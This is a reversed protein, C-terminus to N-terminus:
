ARNLTDLLEQAKTFNRDAALARELNHIAKKSEGMRVLVLAMGFFVEAKSVASNEDLKQLLLAKFVSEARLLHDSKVLDDTTEDALEVSLRGLDASVKVNAPDLKRAAELEELAATKEDGALLAAAIRLHIDALDKSRKGGYAEVARKLMAVAEEPIGAATFADALELMLDRNDPQLALAKELLSAAAVPDEFQKAQVESARRYLMVREAVDDGEEARRTMRDSLADWRELRQYYVELSEGLVRRDTAALDPTELALELVRVAGEDDSGYLDRAKIALAPVDSALGGDVLREYMEAADANRGQGEYLRALAECAPRHSPVTDLVALYGDIARAHDGVRTECLEALRLRLALEGDPDDEARARDIQREVLAVLEEDRGSSELLATLQEVAGAHGPLEDLVAKLHDVAETVADLREAFLRACDMRLEARREPDQEGDVLRELLRVLDETRDEAEYLRRLADASVTDTPDDDFAQEYIEIAGRTNELSAEAVRAAEHRLAKMARSDSTLDIRRLILDFREAHDGRRQCVTTLEALAWEDSDNAALMERLITEVLDEDALSEEAIIKAERRVDASEREVHAAGSDLLDALKRLTAVLDKERGDTRQLAELRVVADGCTPDHKLAAALAQEASAPDEVNEEFWTAVRLYVDRAVDSRISGDERAIIDGLANLVACGASRWAEAGQAGAGNLGALRELLGLVEEDAPGDALASEVIRQAGESDAGEDEVMVALDLRLRVREAPDETFDVRKNRLAIRAAGDGARRYLTDLAEAVREFLNPDATLGELLARAEAHDPELEVCRELQDLAATKDEFHELKLQALRFHLAARAAVDTEGEIRRELVGALRERDGSELYLRDLAELLQAPDEAQDAARRYAEIARAPSGLRGEAIWGLRAYLDAQAAGDYVDPALKEITDAYAAFQETAECLREIDDHLSASATAGDAHIEVLVRLLTDRAKDLQELQEEYIRAMATLTEARDVSETQASIHMERLDILEEYRGLSAYIPDLVIAVDNRLDPNERGLRHAAEIAHADDPLEELVMRFYEFAEPALALKAVCLDGIQNRLAARAEVEDANDCQAKLVEYLDTWREAGRYLRELGDLVASDSPAVDRAQELMRIADEPRALDREYVEASRIILEQRREDDETTADIRQELLVVLRGPARAEHLWILRDLAAVSSPDIEIARELARTAADEDALMDQQIEGLREYTRAKQDLDNLREVRDALVRALTEWDGLSVCLDDLRLVVPDDSPDLAAVQALAAVTRRSDNLRQECVNAIAHLLKLRTHDDSAGAAAKDYAEVLTGWGGAAGALREVEDVNEDVDPAIEFAARAVEFAKANDNGRTEWLRASELLIASRDLRDDTLALRHEVLGVLKRWDDNNEYVARLVEVVRERRAEDDLMRELEATAEAHGPLAEVIQQLQELARDRDAERTALLKALELRYVAGAEPAHHLEARREYLEALDDTREAARYLATLADLAAEDDAAVDLLERLTGIADEDRGLEQQLSAVTHLFRVRKEDDVVNDVGKRYHDIREEQRGLTILIADIAAFLAASEPNFEHARRYWKLGDVNREAMVFLEGAREALQATKKDDDTVGELASAFIEAVREEAGTGLLRGLSEIKDWIKEDGPEDRLRRAVTELAMGYDELQEEFHQALKHLLVGREGPDQACDVRVELAVKLREWNATSRYFTELSRAAHARFEPDTLTELMSELAKIAPEFMPDVRLAGDLEELARAPDNLHERLVTALNVRLVAVERGKTADVQREFLRVLDDFRSETRYLGDLAAVADPELELEIVDEYTRIAASRDALPGAQLKGARLLLDVRADAGSNDARLLLIGLLRADDGVTAYLEELALMAAPDDARADLAARYHGIARENDGLMERALEGARLRTTQQIDADLMDGLVAEYLALLDPYRETAAALREASAVWSALTPEGVSEKVGSAAYDFARTASDLVDEATNLARQLIELRGAADSTAEVEIGLVRLMEEANGDARYVPALIRAAERRVEADDHTLIDELGARARQNAADVRLVKRYSGMAGSPDGLRVRRVDGLRVHLDVDVTDRALSLWADLVEALDEYREAKEYLAALPELVSPEPGFDDIVARWADVAEDIAVLQEGLVRASKVMCRRRESAESASQEIQRLTDILERFRGTEAYLRELAGLAIADTPEDRLRANWTDITRSRDELREEYIGAIREFLESRAAVDDILGVELELVAVLKAADARREYITALVRTAPIVLEANTSDLETVERLLAEARADDGLDVECVRAASLLIEGRTAKSDSRRAAETLAEAIREHARIRHGVEILRARLATDEPDLPVLKALWGFASTDDKLREDWLTALRRLLERQQDDTAAAELRVALVRVLDRIDGRAEYVGDLLLATPQRLEDVSLSEEALERAEVHDRDAELVVTLHGIVRDTRKIAHLQLDVVRLRLLVADADSMSALRRELLAALDEFRKTRAYLRELSSISENHSGDIGLIREHYRIAKDDSGLLEEALMAAQGLNEIREADDEATELASVHLEELDTWRQADSFIAQLREFAAAHRADLARIQRLYPIAGEPDKLKEEYLRSARECLDIRLDAPLADAGTGSLHRQYTSALDTQRRADAALRELLNWLDLNQPTESLADAIVDFAGSEDALERELVEALSQYLELRRTPDAEHELLVRIARTRDGAADTSLYHEELVAAARARVAGPEAAVGEDLPAILAELVGIARRCGPELGLARVCADFASAADDRHELYIAALATELRIRADGTEVDRHASMVETARRFNKAAIHLRALEALSGTRTADEALVRELLTVARAPEGFVDLEVQAWEELAELRVQGEFRTARVEFLWRLDDKRATSRLFQDFRDITASDSPDSEVLKRFIVVADDVKGLHSAYVDALMSEVERTAAAQDLGPSALGPSALRAKLVDVFPIWDGSQQSWDRLWALGEDDGRLDYAQRAYGLAAAKNALQGGAISSMKRLIAIKDDIDSTADLVIAHLAPLRSWKGDTEYIPLLARAADVNKPSASLIREYSRAAREPAGLYEEYIRAARFSLAIKDEAPETRDATTSLFDALGEWDNQSGYLDELGDWDRADVLAQRLVRLARTHGPSLELVRRWTHNAGLQDNLKEAQLAGLKQLLVLKKEVDSQEIRAELVFAATAHDKSREAQKELADLVGETEPAEVLIERWIRVAEDGKDLREAALKALERMVSIREAGTATKLQQEYLEYLKPWTRRKQYLEILQERAEADDGTVELLAEYATIANQVNSFQELWRRAVSRLLEIRETQDATIDALKQQTGLLDRWRSLSEYVAVLGRVAETDREDIQIIQTLVTLLATDSKMRERYIEAMQRLVEIRSPGDDKPLRQLDQRLLEILANYSETQLYLKKLKERADADNPDTRLIAKYQDIARKTNENGEALGAIEDALKRKQEEDKTARQADGLITLLRASDGKKACFDRFFRMMGLHLPDAKRVREFYPEAAAADGIAQWNLMAIQVWIGFEESPRVAGTALMREYLAVLADWSENQTYFERLWAVATANGPDVELLAEHARVSGAEGEIRTRHIRAARSATAVKEVKAAQVQLLKALVRVADEFRGADEYVLAALGLARRNDPDVALASELHGLVRDFTDEARPAHRITTDAAAFLFRAKRGADETQGADELLQAVTAEWTERQALIDAIATKAKAEDPRAALAARYAALADDERCLEVHLIRARQLQKAAVEGDGPTVRIELDLLRAAASWSHLREHDLRARELERAVGADRDAATADEVQEWASADHPDSVLAVLASRFSEFSM